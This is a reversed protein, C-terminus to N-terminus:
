GEKEEEEWGGEMEQRRSRWRRRRTSRTGKGVIVAQAIVMEKRMVGRRGMVLGLFGTIEISRPFYYTM